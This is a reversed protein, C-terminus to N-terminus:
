KIIKEAPITGADMKLYGAFTYSSVWKLPLKLLRKWTPYNIFPINKFNCSM